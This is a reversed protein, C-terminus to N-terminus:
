DDLSVSDELSLRRKQNQDGSLLQEVEEEAALSTSASNGTDDRNVMSTSKTTVNQTPLQVSESAPLAASPTINPTRAKKPAISNIEAIIHKIPTGRKSAPKSASKSPTATNHPVGNPRANREGSASAQKVGNTVQKAKPKNKIPTRDVPKSQGDGMKENWLAEINHRHAIVTRAGVLRYQGNLWPGETTSPRGYGSGTSPDIVIGVITISKGINKPIQKGDPAYIPMWIASDEGPRCPSWAKVEASSLLRNHGPLKPGEKVPTPPGDGDLSSDPNFHYTRYESREKAIYDNIIKSGDFLNQGLKNTSKMCTTGDTDLGEILYEYHLDSKDEAWGGLTEEIGLHIEPQDEREKVAAEPATRQKSTKSPGAIAAPSVRGALMKAAKQIKGTGKPRGRGRADKVATSDADLPDQSTSHTVLRPAKKTADVAVPDRATGHTVPRPAKEATDFDVPDRATGHTVPRPANKRNAKTRAQPRMPSSSPVHVPSKATGDSGVQTKKAFRTSKDAVEVLSEGLENQLKEGPDPNGTRKRNAKEATVRYQEADIVEVEDDSSDGVYMVWDPPPPEKTKPSNPPEAKISKEPSIVPKIDEGLDGIVGPDKGTDGAEEVGNGEAEDDADSEAEEQEAAAALALREAVIKEALRREEEEDFNAKYRGGRRTGTTMAHRALEKRKEEEEDAYEWYQWVGSGKLRKAEKALKKRETEAKAEQASKVANAATEEATLAAEWLQELQLQQLAILDGTQCAQRDFL